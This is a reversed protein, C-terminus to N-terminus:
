LHHIIPNNNEMNIKCIVNERSNKDAFFITFESQYDQHAVFIVNNIKEQPGILRDSATQLIFKRDLKDNAREELASHAAGPLSLFPNFFSGIKWILTRLFTKNHVKKAVLEAPVTKLTIDTPSFKFYHDTNNAVAITLPTFGAKLVDKGLLSLSENNNLKKCDIVLHGNQNNIASSKYFYAFGFICPLLLLAAYTPKFFRVINM